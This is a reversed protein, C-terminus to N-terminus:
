YRHLSRQAEVLLDGYSDVLKTAEKYTEPDQASDRLHHLVRLSDQLIDVLVEAEEGAGTAKALMERLQGIDESAKQILVDRKAASAGDSKEELSRLFGLQRGVDSKIAQVQLVLYDLKDQDEGSPQVARAASSLGFYQWLTNKGDARERTSIIHQALRDVETQLSWPELRSSYEFHNIIGTDFPISPTQDDMVYCVPKNLATRCGLEFFVNPNLCSIDCLVLETAELNKVIEAHILDAGQAIPPIPVHGSKEVAPMFLCELVHRFHETDGLYRQVMNDPTTIPMIIFCKDM